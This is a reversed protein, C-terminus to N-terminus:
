TSPASRSSSLLQEDTPRASSQACLKIGPKNWAAGRGLGKGVFRPIGRRGFRGSLAMRGFERRDPNSQCGGTEERSQRSKM